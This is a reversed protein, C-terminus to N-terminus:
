IRECEVSEMPEDLQNEQNSHNPELGAFWKALQTATAMERLTRNELQELKRLCM